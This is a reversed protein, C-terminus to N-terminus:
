LLPNWHHNRPLGREAFLKLFAPWDIRALIEYKTSSLDKREAANCPSLNQTPRASTPAHATIYETALNAASPGSRGIAIGSSTSGTRAM